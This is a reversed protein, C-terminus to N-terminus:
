GKPADEDGWLSQWWGPEGKLQLDFYAIITQAWLRRKPLDLIWHDEGEIEILEVDRGLLRLATYMQQSEVPPVNTDADGHLLLLPTTIRDATFLPSQEVYLERDNWPYSDASAVASYLYGWWGAGWYSALNSIGAHSVAADFLDTRTLLYMTMFGGYSAGICGVKEADVFDHEDLFTTTGQIIDDATRRGWADVHRASFEQGFGTAGSPQLVLVVYGHGAWVQKPYRGGFGRSVPVTGGYYDVILPYTKAPDFDPPLYYRGIIETGDEATFSWDRVEGLDANELWPASPQMLDRPAASADTTRVFVTEARTPSTGVYAILDAATALDLDSVVDAGSSLEAFSSTAPDYTALRVWSGDQVSLVIRGDHRSWRAAIVAPDYDLTFAEVSGGEVDLLYAQTDYDNPVVDAGLRTGARDFLSPGGTILLRRGDPGYEARDFWGVQALERTSTTALDLELLSTRSFPRETVTQDTRAFLLAGGDPRVDLLQDDPHGATLPRSLGGAAPVQIVRRADRRGSWRDALDRYRKAGREDVEAPEQLSVLLSAGDPAWRHGSYNELGRVIPQAPGVVLQRDGIAVRWLDTTDADLGRTAYSFWAGDPSWALDRAGGRLSHVVDGSRTDLIDIWRERGTAPVSPQALAVALHRGNPELALASVAPALLLDDLRLGRRPSAAATVDGAGDGVLEAKFDWPGGAVPDYIAEVLLHHVGPSLELEAHTTPLEPLARRKARRPPEAPVPTSERREAIQAGDLLVRLPHRSHIQLEPSAYRSAELYVSLLATRPLDAEPAELAGDLTRQSWELEEGGAHALRDGAAPWTEHEAGRADLLDAAGFGDGAALPTTWPGLVLWSTLANRELSGEASQEAAGVPSSVAVLIALAVWLDCSRRISPM